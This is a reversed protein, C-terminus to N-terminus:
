SAELRQRPKKRLQEVTDFLGFQLHSDNGRFMLADECQFSFISWFWQM